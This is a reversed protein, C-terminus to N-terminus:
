ANARPAAALMGTASTASARSNFDWSGARMKIPSRNARGSGPNSQPLEGVSSSRMSAPRGDRYRRALRSRTVALSPPPPSAAIAGVALTSGEAVHMSLTTPGPAVTAAPADTVADYGTRYRELLATRDMTPIIPLCSLPRITTERHGIARSGRGVRRPRSLSRSFSCRRAPRGPAHDLGAPSRCHSTRIVRSAGM